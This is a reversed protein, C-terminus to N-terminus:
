PQIARGIINRSPVYGVQNFWRSDVSSDRNDGMVFYNDPPVTYVPTNDVFANDVLDFTTYSVGNPLTERWRKTPVKDDAEEFYDSLRERKVPDGDIYPLGNIMQIREGPFGILRKISVARTDKPLLFVIIDGRKPASGVPYKLAVAKDGVQLTPKMAGSPVEYQRHIQALSFDGVQQGSALQVALSSASYKTVITNLKALAERYKSTAAADNQESPADRFLRTAEVFLANARDNPDEKACGFLILSLLFITTLSRM